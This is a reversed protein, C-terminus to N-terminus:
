PYSTQPQGDYLSDRVAQNVSRPSRFGYSVSATPAGKNLKRPRIVVIAPVRDVSVGSTIRSYDGIDSVEVDFVKVDDRARIPDTFSKLRQDSLGRPDYVFLAIPKNSAYAVLVDKPLGKTPLLGDASGLDGGAGASPDPTATPSEIPPATPDVPTAAPDVPTATAPDTPDPAGSATSGDVPDTAGPVPAAATPDTVPEEGKLVTTFLLIAAIVGVVGLVIIQVRPNENLQQRM